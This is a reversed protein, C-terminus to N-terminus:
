TGLEDTAFCHLPPPPPRPLPFLKEFPTPELMRGPVVMAWELMRAYAVALHTAFEDTRALAQSSARDPHWTYAAKAKEHALANGYAM